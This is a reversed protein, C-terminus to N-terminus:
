QNVVAPDTHVPVLLPATTLGVAVYVAGPPLSPLLAAARLLLTAAGSEAQM